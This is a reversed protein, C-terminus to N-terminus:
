FTPEIRLFTLFMNSNQFKVWNDKIKPIKLFPGPLHVLQYQKTVFKCDDESRAVIMGQQPNLQFVGAAVKHWFLLLDLIDKM